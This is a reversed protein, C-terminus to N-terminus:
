NASLAAEADSAVDVNRVGNAWLADLVWESPNAKVAYFVEGPFNERFWRAAASVRHPRAIAIPGDPAERATLDLPSLVHDM